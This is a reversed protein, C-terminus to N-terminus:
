RVGSYYIWIPVFFAIVGFAQFVLAFVQLIIPYVTFESIWSLLINLSFGILGLVTLIITKSKMKAYSIMSELIAYFIFYLSLTKFAIVPNIIVLPLFSIRHEQYVRIMHSFAIFFFGLMEFFSSFVNFYYSVNGYKLLSFIDSFFQLLFNTSIFIFAFSLRAFVPRRTLSYGKYSILFAFFTIVLALLELSM